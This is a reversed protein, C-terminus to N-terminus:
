KKGMERELKREKAARGEVSRNVLTTIWITTLPAVIFTVLEKHQGIWDNIEQVLELAM